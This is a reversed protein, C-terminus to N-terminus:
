LLSMKQFFLAMSVVLISCGTVIHSLKLDNSKIKKTSGFGSMNNVASKEKLKQKKDKKKQKEFEQAQKAYSERIEPNRQIEQLEKFVESLNRNKYDYSNNGNSM